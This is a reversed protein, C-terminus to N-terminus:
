QSTEKEAQQDFLAQLHKQEAKSLKPWVKSLTQGGWLSRIQKDTLPYTPAPMIKEAIFGGCLAGSLIAVGVLLVIMKWDSFSSHAKYNELTTQANKVSNNLPSITREIESRAEQQVTNKLENVATKSASSISEEIVSVLRQKFQPTTKEFQDVQAKFAQLLQDLDNGQKSFIQRDESWRESLKSFKYLAAQIKELLTLEREYINEIESM